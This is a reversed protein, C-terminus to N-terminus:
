VVSPTPNQRSDHSRPAPIRACVHLRPLPGPSYPLCPWHGDVAKDGAASDLLLDVVALDVLLEEGVLHAVREVHIPLNLPM